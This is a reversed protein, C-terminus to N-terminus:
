KIMSVFLKQPNDGHKLAREAKEIFSQKGLQKLKTVFWARYNEDILTPYSDLIKDIERNDIAISSLNTNSRNSYSYNRNALTNKLAEM